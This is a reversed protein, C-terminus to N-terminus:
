AALAKVLAEVFFHDGWAVSEDVGLKKHIHYVGHKLIGEWGPTKNALFQESCLTELMTTAAKRYRDKLTADNVQEVLDFLGSATIAAASSDYQVLKGEVTPADFDWPPVLHQPARRLYCEACRQATELFEPVGSLRHAAAFGYIAWALGRTWTSDPAFGQHTSERQFVGTTVDFIGEHATGGDARVLYKQTTRCHEIAIQRLTHDNTERAAWLIIGVNMMIDIFLSEPGIFSALYGGIQRRMALTRGADILIQKHAPDGTLHYWRLYTSFFLFGLDHVKRDWRRPELRKSAAEANQRWFDDRTHEYLLWYIGPYFGECWHTWLEGEQKWKGGVTYMPHYGPYKALVNRCQAGAFDLAQAFVANQPM